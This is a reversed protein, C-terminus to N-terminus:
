VDVIRWGTDWWDETRYQWFESPSCQCGDEFIIGRGGRMMWEDSSFNSHAVKHGEKMADVAEQKNM